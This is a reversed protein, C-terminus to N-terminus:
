ESALKKMKVSASARVRTAELLYMASAGGFNPNEYLFVSLSISLRCPTGDPKSM